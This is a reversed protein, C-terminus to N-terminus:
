RPAIMGLSAAVQARFEPDANRWAREFRDRYVRASDAEGAADFATSMWFDLESIPVYRGMADLRTAYAPRLAAIAERPKGVALRAKALEVSTRSWGEVNAWVAQAFEREAEQFRGARMAVLGRVHHQLIWDRGYYSRGCGLELTDAIGKLHLTDANPGLADAALAHHWCYARASGPDLPFSRQETAGGHTLAEYGRAAGAYDGLLRRNDARILDVFWAADRATAVLDDWVRMADHIRGRERALLHRIDAVQARSGERHLAQMREALSDASAYRRAVLLMRAYQEMAWLENGSLTVARQMLPLASDPRQAYSFTWAMGSWAYPADPQENIWRRAWKAAGDYDGRIWHFGIINFFGTCQDCPGTGARMALSDLALAAIAVREAEAFEGHSSLIGQLVEYARPDRPFRRLLGRALAESRENESNYFADWVEQELRDFETGRASHRQMVQRLRRVLATDNAGVASGIRARLAPIFGSDLAISAEIERQAAVLRGTRGNELARMYHQYAELSTTEVDRRPGGLSINAAGLIRVAAQDALSLPDADNLVANRVLAGSRVDHIFLDLVWAQGDRALSGHAVLTAGVRRALDRAEAEPIAAEYTRGSRRVVARVQAPSAVEIAPVAALKGDIMQALGDSLWATATDTAPMPFSLVAIVPRDPPASDTPSLKSKAFFALAIVAAAGTLAIARNRSFTTTVVHPPLSREIAPSEIVSPSVAAPAPASPTVPAPAAPIAEPEKEVKPPVPVTAAKTEATVRVNVVPEPPAAALQERIRESLEMVSPHPALEFEKNLRSRLTEFEELAKALAPRTGPSKIANLFYIAADASLPETDLWRSAVAECEQWRRSRALTACYESCAKLFLAELRRRERSVWQEFAPSEDVHFGELFPGGYLEVARGPDRRELADSFEIADVDLPTDPDLAVDADRTTIAREGLARRLSSLANSLSHRAKAEDTEAWFLGLLTDRPIPRRSLALVALVALKFRRRALSADEEGGGGVLTLRGLTVLQFRNDRLM